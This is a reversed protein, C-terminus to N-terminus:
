GKQFVFPYEGPGTRGGCATVVTIVGTMKQGSLFYVVSGKYDQCDIMADGEKLSRKFNISGKTACYEGGVITDFTSGEDTMKGSIQNCGEEAHITRSVELQLRASTANSTGHWTGAIEMLAPFRSPFLMRHLSPYALVFGAIGALFIFGVVVWRRSVTKINPILHRGSDLELRRVLESFDSEWRSHSLEFGQRSALARIDQPLDKPAPMHAGQVLVPTVPIERNLASSIETRVYDEPDELRSQGSENRCITWDRGILVLMLDCKALQQRLVERFDRGLAISDVDVFTRIGRKKGLHTALARAEGATSERRYSIFVSKM